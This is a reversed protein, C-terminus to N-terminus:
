IKVPYLPPRPFQDGDLERVVEPDLAAYERLRMEIFTRCRRQEGIEALLEGIARPGLRYLKEVQRHFRLRDVLDDIAEAIPRWPSAAPRQKPARPRPLHLRRALRCDRSESGARGRDRGPTRM